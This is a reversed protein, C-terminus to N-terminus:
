TDPSSPQSPSQGCTPCPGPPSTAPPQGAKPCESAWQNHIPCWDALPGYVWEGVASPYGPAKKQYVEPGCTAKGGSGWRIPVYEGCDQCETTLEGDPLYIPERREPPHVCTPTETSTQQFAKDDVM